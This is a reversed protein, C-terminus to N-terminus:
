LIMILFMLSYNAKFRSNYGQKTISHPQAPHTHGYPTTVTTSIASHGLANSGTAVDVNANILSSAYFHRISHIGYFPLENRECLKELWKYPMYPFMPEGNDKTFLRDTNVRKNGMLIAQQEQESKWDSLLDMVLDPFKM